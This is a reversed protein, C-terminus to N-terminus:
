AIQFHVVGVTGDNRGVEYAVFREPANQIKIVAGSHMSDGRMTVIALVYYVSFLNSVGDQLLITNYRENKDSGIVTIGPRIPHKTGRINLHM